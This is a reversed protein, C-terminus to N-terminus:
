HNSCLLYCYACIGVQCKYPREGTHVRLHMEKYSKNTFCKLCVPCQFQCRVSSQSLSKEKTHCICQSHPGCHECSSMDPLEHMLRRHKLMNSTHKFGLGCFDCLFPCAASHIREHEALVSAFAFTKSCVSCKHQQIDDHIRRHKRLGSSSHFERKCIDCTLCAVSDVNGKHRKMHLLLHSWYHFTKSCYSCSYWKVTAHTKIHHKLQSEKGFQRNCIDCAFACRHIIAAKAKKGDNENTSVIMDKMSRDQMRICHPVCVDRVDLGILCPEVGYDTAQKTEVETELVLGKDCNDSQEHNFDTAKHSLRNSTVTPEETLEDDSMCVMELENVCEVSSSHCPMSEFEDVSMGLAGIVSISDSLAIEVM